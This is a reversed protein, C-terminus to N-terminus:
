FSDQIFLESFPKFFTGISVPSSHFTVSASELMLFILCFPADLFTLLNPPLPTLEMFVVFMHPWVPHVAMVMIPIHENRLAQQHLQWGCCLDQLTKSSGIHVNAEGLNTPWMRMIVECHTISHPKVNICFVDAHACLLPKCHRKHAYTNYWSASKLLFSSKSLKALVDFLLKANENQPNGLSVSRFVPHSM